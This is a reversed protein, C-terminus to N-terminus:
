AVQIFSPSTRVHGTEFGRWNRAVTNVWQRTVPHSAELAGLHVLLAAIAANKAREAGDDIKLAVGYGQKPLIAVYVGDAGGKIAVGDMVSMLESDIKGVGAVLQPHAIMAQVLAVAAAARVAGLGAPRAMRAMARALGALSTAFNPASCGDIGHGPSNEGTMEEFAQKVAAQVPHSPEIYEPGARLHSAM